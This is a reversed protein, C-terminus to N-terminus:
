KRHPHPRVRTRGPEVVVVAGQELEEAFEELAALCGFGQDKIRYNRLRVIGCSTIERFAFEGFHRDLTVIIRDEREATRCIELDGPDKDWHCVYEM